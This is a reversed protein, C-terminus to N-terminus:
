KWPMYSGVLTPMASTSVDTVPGSIQVPPSGEGIHTHPSGDLPHSSIEYITGAITSMIVFKRFNMPQQQRRPLQSACAGVTLM